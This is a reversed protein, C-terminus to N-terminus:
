TKGLNNEPRDNSTWRFECRPCYKPFPFPVVKSDHGCMSCQVTILEDENQEEPENM